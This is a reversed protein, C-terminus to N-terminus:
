REPLYVLADLVVDLGHFEIRFEPHRVVIQGDAIIVLTLFIFGPVM